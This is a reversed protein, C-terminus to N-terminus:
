LDKTCNMFTYSGFNSVAPFNQGITCLEIINERTSMCQIATPIKVSFFTERAEVNIKGRGISVSRKLSYQRFRKRGMKMAYEASTHKCTVIIDCWIGFSWTKRNRGGVGNSEKSKKEKDCSM